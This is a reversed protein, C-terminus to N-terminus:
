VKEIEIGAQKLIELGTLDRFDQQYVVKIIGSQIILKCCEFCPSHTSYLTSNLSSSTSKACKSIANSEAHLVEPKTVMIVEDQENRGPMECSNNFGAPTGNYGFSLINGDKVILAGVKLRESHSELSITYAISLYFKNPNKM